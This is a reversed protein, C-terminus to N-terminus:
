EWVVKDYENLNPRLQALIFRLVDAGVPVRYFGSLLIRSLLEDETYNHADDPLFFEHTEWETEGTGVACELPTRYCSPHTIDKLAQCLNIGAAVTPWIHDFLEDPTRDYLVSTICQRKNQFKAVTATLQTYCHARYEAHTLATVGQKDCRVWLSTFPNRTTFRQTGKPGLTISPVLLANRRIWTRPVIECTKLSQFLM